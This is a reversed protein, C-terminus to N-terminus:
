FFITKEQIIQGADSKKLRYNDDDVDAFLSLRYPVGESSQARRLCMRITRKQWNLDLSGFHNVRVLDGERRPDVEDCEVANTCNSGFSGYPVTHTWSSATIENWNEFSYFGGVHRDGSVVIITGSTRRLLRYLRERESPSHRWCEFPTIDNFVQISSVIVRVSAQLQLQQELWAWQRDSLMRAGVYDTGNHPANPDDTRVFPSRSYRTDLAIIQITHNPDHGAGWQHSRYVGDEPLTPIQFFQQFYGKAVEKYPNSADADNQGYDHDDLTPFVALLSAVGRVSPHKAMTEYAERLPTCTPDDPRPSSSSPPDCDGYVNDGMLLLLDPQYWLALTDWYPQPMRQSSCSGFAIRTLLQQSEPWAKWPLIAEPSLPTSMTPSKTMPPSGTTASNTPSNTNNTTSSTPGQETVYCGPLALLAATVLTLFLILNCALLGRQLPLWWWYDRNNGSGTSSMQNADRTPYEPTAETATTLTSYFIVEGTQMVRRIGVVGAADRDDAGCCSVTCCGTPALRNSSTTPPQEQEHDSPPTPLDLNMM